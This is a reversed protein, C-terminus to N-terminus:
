FIASNSIHFKFFIYSFFMPFGGQSEEQKRNILFNGFFKGIKFWPLIRAHIQIIPMISDPMSNKGSFFSASFSETLLASFIIGFFIVRIDARSSFKLGIKLLKSFIPYRIGKPYLLFKLLSQFHSIKDFKDCFAM